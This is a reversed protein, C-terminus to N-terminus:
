LLRGGRGSGAAPDCSGGEEALARQRTVATYAAALAASAGGSDVPRERALALM